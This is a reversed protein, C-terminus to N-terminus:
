NLGLWLLWADRQETPRSYYADRMARNFEPLYVMKEGARATPNEPNRWEILPLKNNEAMAKIASTPKGIMEGFRQYTVADILSKVESVGSIESM